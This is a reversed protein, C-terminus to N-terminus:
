CACVSVELPKDRSAQQRHVHTCQLLSGVLALVPDEGRTVCWFGLKGCAWGVLHLANPSFSGFSDAASGLLPGLVWVPKHDLMAFSWMLNALDRDSFDTINNYVQREFADWWKTCPQYKLM